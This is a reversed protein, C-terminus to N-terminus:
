TKSYDCRLGGEDYRNVLSQARAMGSEPVRVTLAALEKKGISSESRARKKGPEFTTGDPLIQEVAALSGSGQLRKFRL